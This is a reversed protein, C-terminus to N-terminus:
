TMKSLANVAARAHEAGLELRRVRVCRPRAGEAGNASLRDSKGRTRSGRGHSRKVKGAALSGAQAASALEGALITLLLRFAAESSGLYAAVQGLLTTM